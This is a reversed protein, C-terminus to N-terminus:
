GLESEAVTNHESCLCNLSKSLAMVTDPHCHQSNFEWGVLQYGLPKVPISDSGEIGIMGWVSTSELGFKTCPCKHGHVTYQPGATLLWIFSKLPIQFGPWLFMWIFGDHGLQLSQAPVCDWWSKTPNHEPLRLQIHEKGYNEQHM